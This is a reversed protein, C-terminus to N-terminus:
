GGLRRVAPGRTMLSLSTSVRHRLAACIDGDGRSRAPVRKVAALQIAAAQQADKDTTQSIGNAALTKDTDPWRPKPRCV